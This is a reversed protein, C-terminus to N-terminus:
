KNTNIPNIIKIEIDSNTNLIDLILDLNVIFFNEFCDKIDIFLMMNPVNINLACMTPIVEHIKLELLKSIYFCVTEFHEVDKISKTVLSLGIAPIGRFVAERAAAMTGSYFRDQGLNAGHNIGSIILDPRKDKLIHGVGVLICDAPYGSCSFVDEGVSKVRIPAGLTLGHGCGSRESDPAITTVKYNKALEDKLFNIGQAQVGDDNSILLHM